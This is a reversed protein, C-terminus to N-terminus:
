EEVIEDAMHRVDARLHISVARCAKLNITIKTRSVPNIPIGSPSQGQLIRLAAGAADVGAQHYDRAVAAVAGKKVDESLFVLVPIRSVRAQHIIGSISASTMNDAVQVIADVGKGCLVQAAGSIESPNSVPVSELRIGKTKAERALCDKYVVSNIEGPVFLTGIYDVAPLLARLFKVMGPFNSMTCVGTVNARHNTFSSGAGAACPDASNTFVVPIDTIKRLAVQLTPTSSTFLIHPKKQAADDIISNLTTMDGQANRITLDYQNGKTWGAANLGDLVGRLCDENM